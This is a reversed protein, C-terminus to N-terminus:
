KEPSRSSKKLKLVITVDGGFASPGLIKSSSLGPSGKAVLKYTFARRLTFYCVGGEGTIRVHSQAESASSATVFAGNVPTGEASFVKVFVGRHPALDYKKNGQALGTSACVLLILALGIAHCKRIEGNTEMDPASELM